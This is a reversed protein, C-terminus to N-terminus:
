VGNDNQITQCLALCFPLGPLNIQTEPNSAEEEKCTLDLLRARRMDAANTSTMPSLEEGEKCTLAVLKERMMDAM